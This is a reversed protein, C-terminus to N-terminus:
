LDLLKSYFMEFFCEIVLKGLIICLLFDIRKINLFFVCVGFLFVFICLDLFIFLLCNFQFDLLFKEYYWYNYVVDICILFVRGRQIRKGKMFNYNISLRIMMINLFSYFM